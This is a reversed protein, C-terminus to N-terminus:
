IRHENYFEEKLPRSLLMSIADKFGIKGNVIDNVVRTIPMDVGYKEAIKLIINSTRIGEAVMGLEEIIEHVKMGKALLEGVTRNRSDKSFSTTILDGYGSLGMLTKDKGGLALSLRRIEAIGRTLLAGKANMGLNLGDVMGAAIAIVNKLVGGLEVGRVDDHVYIRFYPRAFINQLSTAFEYSTSAIVASTPLKRSLERAITPGSLVAIKAKPLKKSIFDSPLCETNVFGKTLSIVKDPEYVKLFKDFVEGVANSPLASVILDVGRLKEFKYTIDIKEPIRFGPLKHTDSRFRKLKNVREQDRGWIVVKHGNEKLISSIVLGFSGYGLIGIRM